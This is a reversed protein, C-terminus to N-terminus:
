FPCNAISREEVIVDGCAKEEESDRERFGSLDL